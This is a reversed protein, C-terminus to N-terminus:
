MLWLVFIFLLFLAVPVLVIILAVILFVKLVTRMISGDASDESEERSARAMAYGMLAPRMTAIALVILLFRGLTSLWDSPSKRPKVRPRLRPRDPLDESARRSPSKATSRRDPETATVAPSTPRSLEEAFWDEIHNQTESPFTLVDSKQAAAPAQIASGCGPCKFRRGAHEERVRLTKGCNCTFEIAMAQGLCLSHDRGQSRSM